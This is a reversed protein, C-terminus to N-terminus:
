LIVHLQVNELSKPSYTDRLHRWWTLALIDQLTPICVHLVVDERGTDHTEDHVLSNVKSSTKGPDNDVLDWVEVLVLKLPRLDGGHLFLPCARFENEETMEGDFQRLDPEKVWHGLRATHISTDWERRPLCHRNLNRDEENQFICPMIPHVSDKVPAEEVLVNMLNVVLVRSGETQGSFVSRWDFGHNKTGTGNNYRDKPAQESLVHM